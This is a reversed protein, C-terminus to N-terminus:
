RSSRVSPPWRTPWRGSSGSTPRTCSYWPTTSRGTAASGVGPRHGPHYKAVWWRRRSAAAARAPPTASTTWRPCRPRRGWRRRWWNSRSSRRVRGRWSRRWGCSRRGCCGPGTARSGGPTSTSYSVPDTQNPCASSCLSLLTGNVPKCALCISVSETLRHALGPCHEGPVTPLWLGRVLTGHHPPPPPLPSVKFGLVQLCSCGAAYRGIRRHFAQNHRSSSWATM